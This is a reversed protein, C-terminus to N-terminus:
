IGFATRLDAFAERIPPPGWQWLVIVAAALIPLVYRWWPRSWTSQGCHPCYNDSNDVAEGCARCHDPAILIRM